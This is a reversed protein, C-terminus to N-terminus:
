NTEYIRVLDEMTIAYGTVPCTPHNKLRTIICKWCYVYGSVSCATANDIKMLCIPCDGKPTNSKKLMDPQEEMPEPNVLSGGVKRRQDNSYWWQIFQLFFALVELLKLVIYTAKDEKPPTAPYRLTLRLARFIPSHSGAYKILYMFTHIAKSAKYANFLKLLYEEWAYAEHNQARTLLKREIYPLLTLVSASILEQQRTLLEGTTTHTRQLGYFSEGFSSGRKRLYMYQLLWTVIPSIEERFRKTDTLKFDLRLGLYDFIKSLAPYILNDLTEAASIEFISPINQLNQRVNAGEAM